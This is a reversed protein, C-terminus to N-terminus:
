QKKEFTNKANDLTNRDMLKLYPDVGVWEPKGLVVLDLIHKGSTFRHKELYLPNDQMQGQRDRHNAGFVGIDIFDNMEGNAQEKGTSDYYIKNVDITMHVKYQDGRLPIISVDVIKNDYLCIKEWSDTMYYRLSGPVHLLLANYLDSSGAYPGGNRFAYQNRFAQLAANLSDEGLLDRLGYLILAMKAGSEHGKKAHLLDHAKQFEFQQGWSYEWHWRQRIRKGTKAGFQKEMLITAAYKSLGNPIIDSGVTNNPAVTMEWWQHALQEAITFYCYNVNGQDRLDANWGTQESYATTGNYTIVSPGYPSSEILRFQRFPYPGFAQSFYPLGDKLAASFDSLNIDNMPHYYIESCLTEWPLPQLSDSGNAMRHNNRDSREERALLITDRLVAYRASSIAFPLYVGPRDAVYHFYHRGGAIWSRVLEGPATATQDISTSVTIDLTVMDAGPSRSITNRGEPDDQPITIEKKELLGYRRRKDNNNVEEDDDYGMGPLSSNKLFVGNKLLSLGYFNNQFGKQFISANVEVLATDGPLLPTPFHYVRYASAEREPRFWNFKGRPFYLPCTYDLKRGNYSFSYDTVNDGDLLLSDIPRMGKNRITVQARTEERQEEPYIDTQLIMRTVKPLPLSAYRSLQKETMVGRETKETPTNYDNLYSINYYIYGGAVLFSFFLVFSGARATGRWRDRALLLREKFSSATGRAYFLSGTVVLFSGALIWYGNFWLIPKLLHGIGDMDTFLFLPGYSYLLLHYDFLRGQSLVFLFVWITIGIGYAAFKNNVVIHVAYCFLVMCFLKPLTVAFLAEFYLPVNFFLYGRVLQIAVGLLIPILALGIALMCLSLLKASNLVWTPPPLSDNIFVYRTLKERQVTEGTYFMIVLFLFIMFPSTFINMFFVTRPYDPVGNRIQGHWFVSTIFILGGSIIIWFYNDRVINLVEIRTLSYLTRRFYSGEFRTQVKRIAERNRASSREEDSDTLQGNIDAGSEGGAENEVLLMATKRGKRQGAHGGFFREFSFQLYTILLTVGGVSIWIIRNTLMLGHLPIVATNLQHKSYLATELRLGNMLFPDFLYVVTSNTSSGLFFNALIYGLLLFLGSSYIVKVNRFIAVLGFFLSSTFFLSPLLLTLFPYFYYNFHNSGYQDNSTWGFLPGLKTGLWTGLYFGLAILLVFFFSGLYRGWFYGAKTIPYSLYYEKTNHEIDRYLPVGMISSSVLMLFLSFSSSLLALMAPANIFEKEQEGIDGHGVLLLSILLLLFFYIYFAPRRLRYKIEFLFIQFFM